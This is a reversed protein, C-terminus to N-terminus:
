ERQRRVPLSSVKPSARRQNDVKKGRALPRGNDKAELEAVLGALRKVETELTECRIKWASILCDSEKKEKLLRQVM